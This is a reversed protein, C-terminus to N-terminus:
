LDGLLSLGLGLHTWQQIRFIIGLLGVGITYLSQFLQFALLGELSMRHLWCWSLGLLLYLILLSPFSCVLVRIFMSALIWLLIRALLSWFFFFILCIVWRSWTPNVWPICPNNLMWSDIFTICCKWCRFILFWIITNICASFSEVFDLVM